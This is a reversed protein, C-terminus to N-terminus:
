CVGDGHHQLQEGRWHRQNSSEMGGLPDSAKCMYNGLGGDFSLIQNMLSINLGGHKM